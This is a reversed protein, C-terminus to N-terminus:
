IESGTLQNRLDDPLSKMYQFTQEVVERASFAPTWGLERM